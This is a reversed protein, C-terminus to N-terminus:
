DYLGSAIIVDVCGNLSDVRDKMSPDLDPGHDQLQSHAAVVLRNM